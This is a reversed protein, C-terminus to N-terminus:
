KIGLAANERAVMLEHIRAMRALVRQYADPLPNMLYNLPYAPPSSSSSPAPREPLQGMNELDKVTKDYKLKMFKGYTKQATAGGRRAEVEVPQNWYEPYNSRDPKAKVYDKFADEDRYFQKAHTTEHGLTGLIDGIEANPTRFDEPNLKVNGFNTSRPYQARLYDYPSPEFRGRAEGLNPDFAFGMPLNGFKPYKLQFYALARAAPSMTKPLADMADSLAQFNEPNSLVPGGQLVNPDPHSYASLLSTILGSGLGRGLLAEAPNLSMAAPGGLGFSGLTLGIPIATTSFDSLAQDTAAPDGPNYLSRNPIPRLDVLDRPGYGYQDAM